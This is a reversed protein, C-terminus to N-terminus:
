YRIADIVKVRVAVLAPLLGALAGVAVASVIGLIAAEVPFPPQDVVGQTIQDQVFPLQLIIVAVIVGVVGAVFTAVISEMMVAFFVRLATAGFSRRIGIERIRQRVTVLSINVLGLAGLLLVLAGIAILVLKQTQFPDEGGYSLYDQRYVDVQAGAGLAGQMDRQLRTQLEDALAPPVWFEYSVQNQAQVAPPVLRSYASYLIFFQPQEDWEPSPSVGVVVAAFSTTQIGDGVFEIVPHTRLDPSGIREWWYENIVIAPALRADDSETFWDGKVLQVRHMTGYTSDVVQGSVDLVGDVFQARAGMYTTHGAYHIKYREIAATSAGDTQDPTVVTTGDLSYASAYLTAPRGSSRELQERQAQEAIQGFAVVTTIATVAVAVGVLSLLVRTRHVRLESWAEVVAGVFGNLLNM